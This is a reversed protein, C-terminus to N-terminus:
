VLLWRVYVICVYGFKVFVVVVVVVVVYYLCVAIVAVFVFLVFVVVFVCAVVVGREPDLISRYYYLSTPGAHQGCICLKKVCKLFSRM